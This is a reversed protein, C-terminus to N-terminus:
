SKKMQMVAPLFVLDSLLAFLIVACGLFGTYITPVFSSLCLASFGVILIISTSILAPGSTHMAFEIAKLHPLQKNRAELYQTSIHITDDVAIGLTVAAIMLTSFDMYIHFLGMLGGAILIPTLNPIMLMLGYKVSRLLVVFCLAVILVALSFSSILGELVYVDMKNFLVARGTTSINLDQYNKEIHELIKNVRAKTVSSPAVEFNVAVRMFRGDFTMLDSLDEEPGSNSYLLLYQGVMNRTEPVKYYSEDDNHLVKNIKLLYNIMSNAKGSGELASVYQQFNLARQMFEPEKIGGEKGSDLMFELTLSGKFSQDFYELGQRLTSDEKFNRVFNTDIVITSCFYLVPLMFFLYCYVILRNKRKVLDTLKHISTFAFGTEVLRKAKEPKGEIYSLTAPLTFVSFFFAALVGAPMLVGLEFVPALQSTALAMFGLATTITTYLCPKFYKKITTAAAQQPNDGSNRAAYFGLMIHVSDALAIVTLITPMTSNLMNMPWGSFGLLGFTFLATSLVVMYPFLVGAWTRFVIYLFVLILTILLPYIIMQDDMSSIFYSESIVASGSLYLKFGQNELNHQKLFDKFDTVLINKASGEGKYFAQEVVRASIATHRLDKSFLLGQAMKQKKLIERIKDWQEPSLNFDEAEIPVLDDVYLYDDKSHIYEFKSLSAVKSVSAHEELFDTMKEIAQMTKQKLVDKDGELAEIGVVLFENNEFRQKLKQYELLVPDDQLFWIDTSGDFYLNKLGMVSSLLVILSFVMISIRHKVIKIALTDIM